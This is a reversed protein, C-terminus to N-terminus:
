LAVRINRWASMKYLLKGDIQFKYAASKNFVVQDGVEVGQRELIPNTIYVKGQTVSTVKTNLAMGYDNLEMETPEVFCYDALSKWGDGRDYAFIMDLDAYFCGEKVFNSSDKLHGRVNFWKRFTNHHVIIKDGVQLEGRNKPVAIVEAIRNTYKFDTEDMTTNVIVDKGGIQKVNNYREGVPKILYEYLAKM